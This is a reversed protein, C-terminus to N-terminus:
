WFKPLQVGASIKLPRQACRSTDTPKAPVAQRWLAYILRAWKLLSVIEKPCLELLGGGGVLGEIDEVM